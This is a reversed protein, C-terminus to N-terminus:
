AMGPNTVIRQLFLLTIAAAFAAVQSWALSSLAGKGLLHMASGGIVAGIIGITLPVFINQDRETPFQVKALIGALLGIAIWYGYAM